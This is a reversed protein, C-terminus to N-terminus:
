APLDDSSKLVLPPDLLDILEDRSSVGLKAYIHIAHTKVTSKSIFLKHGINTYSRGQLLALLVDNVRASTVSCKPRM